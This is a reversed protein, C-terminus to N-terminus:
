KVAMAMIEVLGGIPLAAVQFAARSPYPFTFYKAYIENMAAFDKIDALFVHVQVVNNLDLSEASLIFKVNELAQQTQSEIGGEVLKGTKPDIGLQGSVFVMNGACVAQSYPGIAAPAFETKIVKHSNMPIM